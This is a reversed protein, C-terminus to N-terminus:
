AAALESGLRGIEYEPDATYDSSICSHRLVFVTCRKRGSSWDRHLAQPLIFELLTFNLLNFHFLLLELLVRDRGKWLSVLQADDKDSYKSLLAPADPLHVHQALCYQSLLPGLWPCIDM